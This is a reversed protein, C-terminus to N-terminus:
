LLSYDNKGFRFRIIKPTAKASESLFVTNRRQVFCDILSPERYPVMFGAICFLILIRPLDLERDGGLLWRM